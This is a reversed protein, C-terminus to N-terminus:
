TGQLQKKLEEQQTIHTKIKNLSSKDNENNAYGSRQAVSENPAAMEAAYDFDAHAENSIQNNGFFSTVYSHNSHTAFSQSSNQSKNEFEQFVYDETNDASDHMKEVFFLSISQNM